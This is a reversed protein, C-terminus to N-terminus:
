EKEKLYKIITQITSHHMDLMIGIRTPAYLGILPRVEEVRSLTKKSPGLLPIHRRRKSEEKIRPPYGNEKRYKDIIVAAYQRSIQTGSENAITQISQGSELMDNMKKPSVFFKKPRGRLDEAESEDDKGSTLYHIKYPAEAYHEALLNIVDVAKDLDLM